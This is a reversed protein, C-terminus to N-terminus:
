RCLCPSLPSLHCLYRSCWLFCSCKPTEPDTQHKKRSVHRSSLNIKFTMASTKLDWASQQGRLAQVSCLYESDSTKYQMTAKHNSKVHTTCKKSKKSQISKMNNAAIAKIRHCKWKMLQMNLKLPWSLPGQRRTDCWVMGYQGFSLAENQLVHLLCSNPVYKCVLKGLNLFPKWNSDNGTAWHWKRDNGAVRPTPLNREHVKSRPSLVTADCDMTQVERPQTKSCRVHFFILPFSSPSLFDIYVQFDTSFM